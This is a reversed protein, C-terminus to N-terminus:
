SHYTKGLLRSGQDFHTHTYAGDSQTVSSVDPLVGEDTRADRATVIISLFVIIFAM